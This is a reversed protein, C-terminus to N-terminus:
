APLLRYRARFFSLLSQGHSQTVLSKGGFYDLMGPDAAAWEDLRDAFYRFVDSGFFSGPV